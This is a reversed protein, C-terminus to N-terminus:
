FNVKAHGPKPLTPHSAKQPANSKETHSPNGRLQLLGRSVLIPSSLSRWGEMEYCILANQFRATRIPKQDSIGKQFVDKVVSILKKKKKEGGVEWTKFSPRSGLAGQVFLNLVCHKASTSFPTTEHNSSAKPWAYSICLPVAYYSREHIFM